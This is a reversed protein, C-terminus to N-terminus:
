LEIIFYINFFFISSSNTLCSLLQSILICSSLLEM